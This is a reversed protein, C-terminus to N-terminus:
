QSYRNYTYVKWHCNIDNRLM